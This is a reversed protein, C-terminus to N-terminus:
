GVGICFSATVSYVDFDMKFANHPMQPKELSECSASSGLFQNLNIGSKLKLNETSEETLTDRSHTQVCTPDEAVFILSSFLFSIAISMDM